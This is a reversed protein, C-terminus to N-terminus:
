ADSYQRNSPRDSSLCAQDQKLVEITSAFPAPATKVLHSVYGILSLGALLYFLFLGLSFLVRHEWFAMLLFANFCLFAIFLVFFTGHVFLYLRLYHASVEGLEMRFLNWRDRVAEALTNWVPQAANLLNRVVGPSRPGESSM